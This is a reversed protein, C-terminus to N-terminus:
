SRMEFGVRDGDLVRSRGAHTTEEDCEARMSLTLQVNDGPRVCWETTQRQTTSSLGPEIVGGQMTVRITASSVRARKPRLASEVVMDEWRQYRSAEAQLHRLQDVTTLATTSREEEPTETPVHSEKDQEDLRRALQVEDQSGDIDDFDLQTSRLPKTFKAHAPPTLKKPELYATWTNAVDTLMGAPRPLHRSIVRWWYEVFEKDQGVLEALYDIETGDTFTM